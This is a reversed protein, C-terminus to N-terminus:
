TELIKIGYVLMMLKRKLKYVDTRYGKCDEVVEKGNEKYVFDAVYYVPREGDQKPIVEYRVQRRLDQIAGARHLLRLEDWRMAEKQSDHWVGDSTQTRRAHYKSVTREGTGHM